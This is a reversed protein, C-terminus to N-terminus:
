RGWVGSGLRGARPYIRSPRSVLGSSAMSCNEYRSKRLRSSSASFRWLRMGLAQALGVLGGQLGLQAPAIPGVQLGLFSQAVQFLGDEGVQARHASFPGRKLKVHLVGLALDVLGVQQDLGALQDVLHLDPWCFWSTCPSRYSYRSALSFVAPRLPCNRVGRCMMRMITCIIAGRGLLADAVQRCPGAPEQDVGVLIDKLRVGRRFDQFVVLLAQRM